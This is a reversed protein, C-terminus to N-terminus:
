MDGMCIVRGEKLRYFSPRSYVRPPLRFSVRICECECWGMNASAEILELVDLSKPAERGRESLSTGGIVLVGTCSLVTSGGQQVYPGTPRFWSLDQTMTNGRADVM